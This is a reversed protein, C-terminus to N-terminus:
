IALQAEECLYFSHHLIHVQINKTNLYILSLILRRVAFFNTEFKMGEFNSQQLISQTFKTASNAKWTGYSSSEPFIYYKDTVIATESYYVFGNKDYQICSDTRQCTCVRRFVFLFVKLLCYILVFSSSAQLLTCLICIHFFRQFHRNRPIPNVGELLWITMSNCVSRGQVGWLTHAFYSTQIKFLKRDM